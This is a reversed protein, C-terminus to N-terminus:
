GLGVALEVPEVLLDEFEGACLGIAELSMAPALHHMRLVELTRDCGPLFRQSAAGDVLDLEPQASAVAYIAPVQRAGHRDAVLGALDHAPDAGVGVDVIADLGLAGQALALGVQRADLLDALDAAEIDVEGVTEAAPARRLVEGDVAQRRIGDAVAVLVPHPADM